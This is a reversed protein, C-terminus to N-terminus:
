SMGGAGKGSGAGSASGSAATARPDSDDVVEFVVLASPAEATEDLADPEAELSEAEEEESLWAYAEVIGAQTESQM